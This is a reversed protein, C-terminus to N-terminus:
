DDCDDEADIPTLWIGWCCKTLGLDDLNDEYVEHGCESCKGSM